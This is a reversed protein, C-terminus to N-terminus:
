VEVVPGGVAAWARVVRAAGPWAEPLTEGVGGVAAPWADAGLSGGGGSGADVGVAVGEPDLDAVGELDGVFLGDDRDGGAVGVESRFLATYPLLIPAAPRRSQFWVVFGSEAIPGASVRMM